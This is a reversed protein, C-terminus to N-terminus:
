MVRNELESKKKMKSLTKGLSRELIKYKAVIKSIQEAQASNAEQLSLKDEKMEEIIREYHKKLPILSVSPDEGQALMEMELNM